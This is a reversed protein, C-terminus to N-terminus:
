FYDSLNSTTDINSTLGWCSATLLSSIDQCVRSSSAAYPWLDYFKPGFMKFDPGTLACKATDSFHSCQSFRIVFMAAVKGCSMIVAVDSPHILM